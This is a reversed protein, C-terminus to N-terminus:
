AKHYDHNLKCLSVYSVAIYLIAQYMWVTQGKWSFNQIQM